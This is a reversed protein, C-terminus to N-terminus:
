AADRPARADRLAGALSGALAGLLIHWTTGPLATAVAAAVAAALAWPLLDPWGRWLPPLLALFVALATFFLPHGPAPHVLAGLLYGAGTSVVWDIWLAAGVGLMFGLDHRGARMETVSLAFGHDVLFFLTGWLRWGRFRDLWPALVPGMLALRSNVMLVTLTAGIIPAPTTWSGLAVLQAAGGFVLFSMLCSELLSMGHGQALVGVVLGFPTIGAMLPLARRAGRLMGARSYAVEPATV